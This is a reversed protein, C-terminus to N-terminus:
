ERDKIMIRLTITRSVIDSPNIWLILMHKGKYKMLRYNLKIRTFFTRIIIVKITITQILCFQTMVEAIWETLILSPLTSRTRVSAAMFCLIISTREIRVGQERTQLSKTQDRREQSILATAPPGNGRM